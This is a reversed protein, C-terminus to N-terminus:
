KKGKAVKKANAAKARKAQDIARQSTRGRVSGVKQDSSMPDPGVAKTGRRGSLDNNAAIKNVKWIQQYTGSNALIGDPTDGFRPKPNRMSGGSRDYGYKAAAAKLAEGYKKSDVKRSGSKKGVGARVPEDGKKAPAKKKMAM